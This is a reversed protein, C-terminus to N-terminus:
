LKIELLGDKYTNSWYNKWLFNFVVIDQSWLKDLYKQILNVGEKGM